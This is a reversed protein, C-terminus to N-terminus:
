KFISAPTSRRVRDGNRDLFVQVDVSNVAAPAPYEGAYCVLSVAEPSLPSAPASPTQSLAARTRSVLADVRETMRKELWGTM